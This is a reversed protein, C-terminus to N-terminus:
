PFQVPNVFDMVNIYLFLAILGVFFVFNVANQWKIPIPRRLVIEPLVFLIRGGDLAPIPLLNIFGLSVSIMAFFGIANLNVSSSPVGSPEESMYQYMDFMGKYGVPRAMEPSISGQVLAAPLTVFMAIQEYVMRVGMPLAQVLSVPEYLPGMLIGIAGDQPPPDRPVLSVAVTEGDRLLTMDIPVGLNAYIIRRVDESTVIEQGNVTEIVDGPLMGVEQAPSDESVGAVVVGVPTGIQAAIFTYLLAGILLNTIPGALYIAIRVWPNAAAIGGKVDPDGEGRIRVFGGFPLWNLSYLMGMESETVQGRILVGEETEKQSAVLLETEINLDRIKKLRLTGEESREALAEVWTDPEIDRLIRRGSPTIVKTQGIRIWGQRRWLGLARPPFGLGFEDVPIKFFRSAAFHGLEHLIILVSIAFVFELISIVTDM